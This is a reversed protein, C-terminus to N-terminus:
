LVDGVGFLDLGAFKERGHKALLRRVETEQWMPGIPDPPVDVFQRYPEWWDAPVDATTVGPRAPDSEYVARSYAVDIQQLTARQGLMNEPHRLVENCKYLAQKARLRRESLFQLHMLGGQDPRVPCVFRKPNTSMPPRQHFHYGGRTESSWHYDPQDKFATTVQQREGWYSAGTIYRMPDRALALWPLNMVVGPACFTEIAQRITPLLNGSLVEDADVVAIHTAERKRAYGLLAQRHTMESWEPDNIPLLLVRGLNERMIENTIRMSGDTCAHLGIILEDCWLLAARASLALVWDENRVPMLGVLKV